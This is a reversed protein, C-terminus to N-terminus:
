LQNFNPGEQMTAHLARPILVPVPTGRGSVAQPAYTQPGCPAPTSLWPPGSEGERGELGTAHSRQLPACEHLHGHNHARVAAACAACAEPRVVRRSRPAWHREALVATKVRRQREHVHSGGAGHVAAHQLSGGDEVTDRRAGAPLMEHERPAGREETAM